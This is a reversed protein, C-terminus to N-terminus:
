SVPHRQDLLVFLFTHFFLHFICQKTVYSFKSPVSTPVGQMNSLGPYRKGAMGLLRKPSCWRDPPLNVLETFSSNCKFNGPFAIRDLLRQCGYQLPLSPNSFVQFYPDPDNVPTFTDVVEIRLIATDSIPYKPITLSNVQDVILVDTIIQRFLLVTIKALDDAGVINAMISLARQVM